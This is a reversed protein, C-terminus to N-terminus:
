AWSLLRSLSSSRVQCFAKYLPVAAYSAGVAGIVTAAVYIGIRQNKEAMTAVSRTSGAFAPQPRPRRARRAIAHMMVKCDVYVLDNFAACM